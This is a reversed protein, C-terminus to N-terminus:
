AMISVEFYGGQEWAKERVHLEIQESAAAAKMAAHLIPSIANPTSQATCGMVVSYLGQEKTLTFYWRSKLLTPKTKEAEAMTFLEGDFATVLTAKEAGIFQAAATAAKANPDM